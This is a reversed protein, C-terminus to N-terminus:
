SAGSRGTAARPSTSASAQPGASPAADLGRGRLFDGYNVELCFLLWGMMDKYKGAFHLDFIKDLQGQGVVLTMPGFADILYRVDEEQIGAFLAAQDKSAFLPGLLKMVRVFVASGRIAGLQTVEYEYDGIVRKRTERLM